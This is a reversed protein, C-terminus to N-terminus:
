EHFKGALLRLAKLLDGVLDPPARCPFDYSHSALSVEEMRDYVKAVASCRGKKSRQNDTIRIISTYIIRDAAVRHAIANICASDTCQHLNNEENYEKIARKVEKTGVTKVGNKVFVADYQELLQEADTTMLYDFATFDPPYVLVVQDVLVEESAPIVVENLTGGVTLRIERPRPERKLAEHFTTRVVLKAGVTATEPVVLSLHSEKKKGSAIDGLDVAQPNLTIVKDGMKAEAAIRVGEALGKGWNSVDLRLDLQDGPDLMGNGKDWVNDSRGDDIRWDSISLLPDPLRSTKVSAVLRGAKDTNHGYKETASVSLGLRGNQLLKDGYIRIPASTVVQGPTIRGAVVTNADLTVFDGGKGDKEILLTVGHAAVGGENTVSVTLQGSESADLTDDHNGLDTFNVSVIRLVPPTNRYADRLAVALGQRQDALLGVSIAEHRSDVKLTGIFDPLDSDDLDRLKESDLLNFTIGDVTATATAIVEGTFLTLTSQPGYLTSQGCDDVSNDTYTYSDVDPILFLIGVLALIGSTVGFRAVDAQNTNAAGLSAALAGSGSLAALIFPVISYAARTARVDYGTKSETLKCDYKEIQKVLLMTGNLEAMVEVERVKREFSIITTACASLLTIAVVVAANYLFTNLRM